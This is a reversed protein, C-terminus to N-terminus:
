HSRRPSNGIKIKFNEFGSMEIGLNLNDEDLNKMFENIKQQTMSYWKISGMMACGLKDVYKQELECSNNYKTTRFIYANESSIHIIVCTIEKLVIQTIKHSLLEHEGTLTSNNM